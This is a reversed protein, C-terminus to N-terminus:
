IRDSSLDKPHGVALQGNLQILTYIQIETSISCSEHLSFPWTDPLGAPNGAVETAGIHFPLDALKM